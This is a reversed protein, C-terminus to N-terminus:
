TLHARYKGICGKLRNRCLEYLGPIGQLQEKKIVPMEQLRAYAGAWLPYVAAPLNRQIAQFNHDVSNYLFDQSIDRQIKAVAEHPEVFICDPSLIERAHGVDTSIIKCRAAATEIVAQPGGEQRSSLLYLDILNYLLNIDSRSLTNVQIDDTEIERGIFTFPVGSERLRRCLWFRRPGALVVHIAAGQRWLEEVIQAFIDPGKMLKPSKLDSGETDRQFSGILFRDRPIGWREVLRRLRDDSNDIPYFIDEELIYPIVLATLGWAAMQNRANESRVIWLTVLKKALDFGPQRLAVAPDHTLHCIIRKGRLFNAPLRLLTPWYVSHVIACNILGAPKTFDLLRRTSELEHHLAWAQNDGGTSYVKIKTALHTGQLNM